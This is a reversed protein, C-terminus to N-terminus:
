KVQLIDKLRDPRNTIIADAGFDVIRQLDAPEDPTWPRVEIGAAHSADVMEKTINRYMPHVANAGFTKVYDWPKYMVESYLIATGIDTGLDNFRKLTEHNFSSIFTKKSIGYDQILQLTAKEIGPYTFRNTKIEVNLYGGWAACFECVQRFSPIKEGLYQEGFWSGADIRQLEEWTHDSILGNGNSTRNLREDHMVVIEGDRSFHVDIEIGDAGTEQAKRFASMTNEPAVASFGRHAIVLPRSM